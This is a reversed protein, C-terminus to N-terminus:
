KIEFEAYLNFSSYVEFPFNYSLSYNRGIRYKGKKGNNYEEILSLNFWGKRTEDPGLGLYIDEFNIDLQIETWNEKDLYELSFPNGFNLVGKTHNEIISEVPYNISGSEPSFYMSVFENENIDIRGREKTSCFYLEKTTGEKKQCGSFSGMLVLMIATALLIKKKM